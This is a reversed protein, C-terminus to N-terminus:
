KAPKVTASMKIRGQGGLRDLEEKVASIIYPHNHGANHICYGSLFDLVLSGDARWLQGGGCRTYTVNLQLVERLRAWQPNVYEACLKDTSLLSPM